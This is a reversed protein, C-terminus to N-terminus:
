SDAASGPILRPVQFTQIKSARGVEVHQLVTVVTVDLDDNKWGVIVGSASPDFVDLPWFVRMLGDHTTM